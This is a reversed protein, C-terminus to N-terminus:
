WCTMVDGIGGLCYIQGKLNLKFLLRYLGSVITHNEKIRFVKGHAVRKMFFKKRQASDQCNFAYLYLKYLSEKECPDMILKNM